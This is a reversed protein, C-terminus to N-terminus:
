NCLTIVKDGIPIKVYLQYIAAKDSYLVIILIYNCITSDM